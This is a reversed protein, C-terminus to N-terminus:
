DDTGPRAYFGALAHTYECREIRFKREFVRPEPYGVPALMLQGSERAGTGVRQDLWTRFFVLREGIFRRDREAAPGILATRTAHDVCLIQKGDCTLEYISQPVLATGPTTIEVRCAPILVNPTRAVPDRLAAGARELVARPVDDGATLLCLLLTQSVLAAM